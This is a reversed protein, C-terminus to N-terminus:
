VNRPLNKYSEEKISCLRKWEKGKKSVIKLNPRNLTKITIEWGWEYLGKDETNEIIKWADSLVENFERDSGIIEFKRGEYCHWKEEIDIKEIKNNKPSDNKLNYGM